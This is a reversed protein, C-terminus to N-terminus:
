LVRRARVRRKYEREFKRRCIRCKRCTGGHGDPALITNAETYEHGHPCHTKLKNLQGQNM